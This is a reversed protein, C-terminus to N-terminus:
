GLHKYSNGDPCPQCEAYVNEMRGEVSFTNRPCLISDFGFTGVLGRDWKKTKCLEEALTILKNGQVDIQIKKFCALEAPLEIERDNRKGGAYTFSHWCCLPLQDVLEDHDSDM